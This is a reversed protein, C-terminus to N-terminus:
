NSTMQQRSATETIADMIQQKREASMKRQLIQCLRQTSIGMTEAVAYSFVGADRIATRVDENPRTM